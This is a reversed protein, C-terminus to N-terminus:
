NLYCQLNVQIGQPGNLSAPLGNMYIGTNEMSYLLANPVLTHNRFGRLENYLPTVVETMVSRVESVVERVIEKMVPVMQARVEAAIASKLENSIDPGTAQGNIIGASM